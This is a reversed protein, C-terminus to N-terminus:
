NAPRIASQGLLPVLLPAYSLLLQVGGADVLGPVWPSYGPSKDAWEGRFEEVAAAIWTEANRATSLLERRLRASAGNVGLCSNRARHANEPDLLSGGAEWAAISKARESHPVNGVVYRRTWYIALDRFGSPEGAKADEDWVALTEAIDRVQKAVEIAVGPGWQIIEEATFPTPTAEERMLAKVRAEQTRRFHSEHAEKARREQDQERRKQM